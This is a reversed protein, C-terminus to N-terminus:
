IDEFEFDDELHFEIYDMMTYSADGWRGSSKVYSDDWMQGELVSYFQHNNCTAIWWTNGADHIFTNFNCSPFTINKSQKGEQKYKKVRELISKIRKVWQSYEDDEEDEDEEIIKSLMVIAVDWITPYAEKSIIFSSSSSNSVFGTRIKM